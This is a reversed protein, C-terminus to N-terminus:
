GGLYQSLLRRMEAVHEEWSLQSIPVLPQDHCDGEM